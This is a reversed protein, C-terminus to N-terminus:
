RGECKGPRACLPARNVRDPRKPYPLRTDRGRRPQHRTPPSSASPRASAAGHGDAPTRAITASLRLASAVTVSSTEPLRTADLPAHSSAPVPRAVAYAVDTTQLPAPTTRQPRTSPRAGPTQTCRTDSWTAPDAGWTWAARPTTRPPPPVTADFTTSHV